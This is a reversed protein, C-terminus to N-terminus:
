NSPPWPGSHVNPAPVAGDADSAPAPSAGRPPSDREILRILNETLAAERAAHRWERRVLFSRVVPGALLGVLVGVILGTAFADARVSAIPAIVSM